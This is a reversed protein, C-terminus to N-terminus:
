NNLLSKLKELIEQNDWEFAGMRNYVLKGQKNFIYTQPRAQPLENASKMKYNYFPIGFNRKEEFKRIKDPSEDSAILFVVEDSRLHEVANKIRPMERICPGCWTAWLNIVVSKGHLSDLNIVNGKLDTFSFDTLRYTPTTSAVVLLYFASVVAIIIGALYGVLFPRNKM